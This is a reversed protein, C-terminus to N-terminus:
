LFVICAIVYPHLNFAIKSTAVPLVAYFRGFNTPPSLCFQTFVALKPRRCLGCFPDGAAVHAKEM